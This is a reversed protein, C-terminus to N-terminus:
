GLGKILNDVAEMEMQVRAECAYSGVHPTLIVNNLYRLPGDYPESEFVDLAAGSLHGSSLAVYLADEDVMGGRSVNILWAGKRMLNIRKEDLLVSNNPSASVHLTVIDSWALLSELSMLKGLTGADIEIIDHYGTEVDFPAMLAALRRGIRGFGIVGIKKYQLLSGMRKEWSGAKLEHDMQTIKRLLNIILGLTLEAVTETTADPTRYVKVGLARACEHDVNDWGSGVRSVVRLYKASDKLVKETIPETGAILGAPKEKKLLSSLEIETLKREYPNPIVELDNGKLKELAGDNFQGFSSTTILIRRKM